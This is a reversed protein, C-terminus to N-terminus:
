LDDSSLDDESGYQGDPGASIITPYNETGRPNSGVYWANSRYRLPRGWADNVELLAFENGTTTDVIFDNDHNTLMGDPISELYERCSAVTYLEAYIFEITAFAHVRNVVQDPMFNDISEDWYSNWYNEPNTVFSNHKGPDTNFQSPSNHRNLADRISDMDADDPEIPFVLGAGTRDPPRSDRYADLAATLQQMVASTNKGKASEIVGKGVIVAAGALLVMITIVVMLEVLTFGPRRIYNNSNKMNINITLKLTASMMAPAM